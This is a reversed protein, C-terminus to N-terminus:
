RTLVWLLLGFSVPGLVAWLGFWAGVFRATIKSM